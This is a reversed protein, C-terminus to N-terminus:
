IIQPAFIIMQQRRGTTRRFPLDTDYQCHFSNGNIVSGAASNDMFCLLLHKKGDISLEMGSCLSNNGKLGGKM